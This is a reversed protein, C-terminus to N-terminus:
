KTSGRSATAAPVTPAHVLRAAFSTVVVEDEDNGGMMGSSERAERTTM